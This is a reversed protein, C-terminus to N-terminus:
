GLLLEIIGMNLLPNNGRGNSQYEAHRVQTLSIFVIGLVTLLVGFIGLLFACRKRRNLSGSKIDAPFGGYYRPTLVGIPLYCVQSRAWLTTAILAALWAELCSNWPEIGSLSPLKNSSM